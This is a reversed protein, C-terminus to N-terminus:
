HFTRNLAKGIPFTCQCHHRQYHKRQESQFFELHHSRHALDQAFVRLCHHFYLLTQIVWSAICHQWSRYICPNINAFAGTQNFITNAWFRELDQVFPILQEKSFPPDPSGSQIHALLMKDMRSSIIRQLWAKRLFPFHDPTTRDARSWDPQSINGGGDVQSFPFDEVHKIPLLSQLASWQLDQPGPTLLPAISAAFNEALTSPYCATARSAFNGWQDRVGQISDHSHPPHICHGGLTRLTSFSSAFM